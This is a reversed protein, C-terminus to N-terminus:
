GFSQKCVIHPFHFNRMKESGQNVNVTNGYYHVPDRKNKM